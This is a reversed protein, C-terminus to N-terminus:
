YRGVRRPLWAPRITSWKTRVASWIYFHVSFYRQGLCRRRRRDRSDRRAQRAEAAPANRAGDHPRQRHEGGADRQEDPQGGAAVDRGVVGVHLAVADIDRGLDGAGDDLHRHALVLVDRAALEEVLEVVRGVAVLERADVGLDLARAGVDLAQLRLPAGLALLDLRRLALLGVRLGVERAVLVQGLALEPRHLLHFLRAHREVDGLAAHGGGLLVECADLRRERAIGLDRDVVMGLDLLQHGLAVVRQQVHAARRDQRRHVSAHGLHQHRAAVGDHAHGRNGHDGVGIEPDLGVELLGLERAHADALRDGDRDVGIGVHLAGAFDCREGLRRARLEGHQRRLVRGAIPDLDHLADRDAGRHHALLAIRGQADAHARRDLDVGAM